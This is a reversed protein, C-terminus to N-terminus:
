KVGHVLVFRVMEGRDSIGLRRVVAQRLKEASEPKLGMRRGVEVISPSGPATYLLLFEKERPTLSAILKDPHAMAAEEEVQRRLARDVYTNYYFDATHVTHLARQLEERRIGKALFARAGCRLARQASHTCPDYTLALAKTRPQHHTIWAITDYGDRVPMRLDVVALHIHGAEACRREYDLGNAAEVVVKGQPWGSLMDVFGRRVLPHDDVVAIHLPATAM